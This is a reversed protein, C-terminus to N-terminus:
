KPETKLKALGMTDANANRYQQSKFGYLIKILSVSFALYVGHNIFSDSFTDLLVVFEEYLYTAAFKAMYKLNRLSYDKADPFSLKM